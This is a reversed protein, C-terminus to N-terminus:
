WGTAERTAGEQGRQTRSSCRCLSAYDVLVLLSPPTAGKNQKLMSRYERSRKFEAVASAKIEAIDVAEDQVMEDNNDGKSQPRMARTMRKCQNTAPTQSLGKQKTPEPSQSMWVKQAEAVAKAKAAEVEKLSLMRTVKGRKRKIPVDQQLEMNQLAITLASELEPHEEGARSWALFNNIGHMRGKKQFPIVKM